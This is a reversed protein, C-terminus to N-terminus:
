LFLYKGNHLMQGQKQEKLHIKGYCNLRATILEYENMNQQIKAVDIAYKIIKM